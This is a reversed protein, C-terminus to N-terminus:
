EFEIQECVVLFHESVNFGSVIVLLLIAAQIQKM